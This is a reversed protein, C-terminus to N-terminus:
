WRARPKNPVGHHHGGQDAGEPWFFHPPWAPFPITYIVQWKWQPLVVDVLEVINWVIGLYRTWLDVSEEALEQHTKNPTYLRNAQAEVFLVMNKIRVIIIPPLFHFTYTVFTLGLEEHSIGLVPCDESYHTTKWLMSSHSCTKRLAVLAPMEISKSTSVRGTHTLLWLFVFRFSEAHSQFVEDGRNLRPHAGYYYDEKSICRNRMWSAWGLKSRPSSTNWDCTNGLFIVVM